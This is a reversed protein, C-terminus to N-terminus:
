STKGNDIPNGVLQEIGIGRPANSVPVRVVWISVMSAQQTYESANQYTVLVPVEIHWSYRGKLPGESIVAPPTIIQAPALLQASAVMQRATLTLLNNSGGLANLFQSWGNDTFFESSAQLEDHYNVYSYSFAALAAQSAWRLVEDNSQNPQDVPVLPMIRGDRGM